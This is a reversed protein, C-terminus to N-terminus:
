LVLNLLINPFSAPNISVCGSVADRPSFINNKNGCLHPPPLKYIYNNIIQKTEYEIDIHNKFFNVRKLLYM